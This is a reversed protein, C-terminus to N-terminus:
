VQTDSWVRLVACVLVRSPEFMCTSRLCALMHAEATGDSCPSVAHELLMGKGFKHTKSLVLAHDMDYRAQSCPYVPRSVSSVNLAVYLVPGDYCTGPYNLRFVCCTDHSMWDDAFWVVRSLAM